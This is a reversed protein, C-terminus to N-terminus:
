PAVLGVNGRLFVQSLRCLNLRTLSDLADTIRRSREDAPVDYLRASFLLNERGTLMGDASLMQPVYGIRRRVDAPANLISAGAVFAEGESPPLLTTLM